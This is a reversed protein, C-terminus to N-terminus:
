RKIAVVPDIGVYNSGVLVTKNDVWKTVIVGSNSDVRYDFEGRGKKELDKNSSMSCGHLCNARITRVACIKKSMLYQFLQLTTFWNNFYLKHWPQSHLHKTLKAVVASCKQLRSFEPDIKDKGCYIDFDYMMGSSGACVLNKFGWKQPNKPNYQRTKSRKTKCSIIQEDVAQFEEPEVKACEDRIATIIPRM